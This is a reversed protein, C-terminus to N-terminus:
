ASYINVVFKNKPLKRPVHHPTKQSVKSDCLRMLFLRGWMIAVTAVWYVQIQSIQKIQYHSKSWCSKLRAHPYCKVASPQLVMALVSGFDLCV